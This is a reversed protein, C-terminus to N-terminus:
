DLKLGVSQATVGPRALVYPRVGGLRPLMLGASGSWSEAKPTFCVDSNCEPVDALAM